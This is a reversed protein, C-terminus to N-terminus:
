EKSLEAQARELLADTDDYIFQRLQEPGGAVDAALEQCNKYAQCAKWERRSSRVTNLTAEVTQNAVVIRHQCKDRSEQDDKGSNLLARAEVNRQLLGALEPRLAARHVNWSQFAPHQSLATRSEDFAADNDRPSSLRTLIHRIDM